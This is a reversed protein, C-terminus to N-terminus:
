AGRNPPPPIIDKGAPFRGYKKIYAETKDIVRDDGKRLLRKLTKDAATKGEAKLWKSTAAYQKERTLANWTKLDDVEPPEGAVAPPENFNSPGLTPDEVQALFRQLQALTYGSM